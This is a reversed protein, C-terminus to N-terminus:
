FVNKYNESFYSKLYNLGNDIKKLLQASTFSKLITEIYESIADKDAEEFYKYCFDDLISNDITKLFRAVRKKLFSGTSTYCDSNVLSYVLLALFYDTEKLFSKILSDILVSEQLNTTDDKPTYYNESKELLGDLSDTILNIKRKHRNLSQFYTLRASEFCRNIVKDPGNPDMWLKNTPDKWKRFKLAYYVSDVLWDYCDEPTAMGQCKSYMKGIKKWYNLMIAAFYANKLFEDDEHEIYLNCLANKDLTKWEPIIDAQIQCMLKYDELM